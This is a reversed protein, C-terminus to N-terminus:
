CQDAPSCISCCHHKGVVIHDLLQIDVLALAKQLLRTINQDDHSPSPDGSPHNHCCIVNAANHFLARKIVQRPYVSAQDISGFFLEEFYILHQQSDLFLCAFVEHDYHSLKSHCFAQAATSDLVTIGSHSAESQARRTLEILAQLRTYSVVGLGPTACWQSVSLSFIQTLNHYQQLLKAAIHTAPQNQYGHGILIALLETASLAAAGHQLLRERPRESPPLQTLKM